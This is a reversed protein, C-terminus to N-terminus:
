AELFCGPAGYAECTRFASEEAPAKIGRLSDFEATIWDRIPYVKVDLGGFKERVLPVVVSLGALRDLLAELIPQWGVGVTVEADRALVPYWARLDEVDVRRMLIEAEIAAAEAVRFAAQAAPAGPDGASALDRADLGLRWRPDNVPEEHPGLECGETAASSTVFRLMKLLALYGAPM